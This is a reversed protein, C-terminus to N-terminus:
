TRPDLPTERGQVVGCERAELQGGHAAKDRLPRRERGPALEGLREERRHIQALRLTKLVLRRRRTIEHAPARRAAEAARAIDAVRDSPGLETPRKVGHLEDGDRVRDARGLVEECVHTRIRREGPAGTERSRWGVDGSRDLVRDARRALDEIPRAGPEPRQPGVKAGGLCAELLAEVSENTGRVQEPQELVRDHSLAAPTVHHRHLGLVAGRDFPDHM